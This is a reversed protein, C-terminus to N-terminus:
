NTKRNEGRSGRIHNTLEKHDDIIRFMLSFLANESMYYKKSQDAVIAEKIGHRIIVTGNDNYVDFVDAPYELGPGTVALAYYALITGNLNDVPLLQVNSYLGKTGPITFTAPQLLETREYGTDKFIRLVSMLLLRAIEGRLETM